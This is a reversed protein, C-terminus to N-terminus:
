GNIFALFTKANARCLEDWDLRSDAAYLQRIMAVLQFFFLQAEARTGANRKADAFRAYRAGLRDMVDDYYAIEDVLDPNARPLTNQLMLAMAGDQRCTEFFHRVWETVMELPPEDPLDLLMDYCAGLSEGVNNSLTHIIESKSEYHLYFAARSVGAASAIQDITTADYGRETFLTCGANLLRRATDAKRMSRRNSSSGYAAREKPQDQPQISTPM